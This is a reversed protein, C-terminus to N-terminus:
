KVSSADLSVIPSLNFRSFEDSYGSLYILRCHTRREFQERSDKNVFPSRLVTFIEKKTPLPIPGWVHVGLNNALEIFRKVNEDLIKHDYSHFKVVLQKKHENKSIKTM